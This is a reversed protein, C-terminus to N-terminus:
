TLIFFGDRFQATVGGMGKTCHQGLDSIQVTSLQLASAHLIVGTFSFCLIKYQKIQLLMLDVASVDFM